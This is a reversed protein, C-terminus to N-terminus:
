RCLFVSCNTPKRVQEAPASHGKPNLAPSTVTGPQAKHSGKDSSVAFAPLVRRVGTGGPM